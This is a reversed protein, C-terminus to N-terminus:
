GEHNLGRRQSVTILRENFFPPLVSKSKSSSKYPLAIIRVEGKGPSTCGADM